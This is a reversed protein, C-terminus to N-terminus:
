ATPLCPPEESLPDNMQETCLAFVDLLEASDNAITNSIAKTLGIL